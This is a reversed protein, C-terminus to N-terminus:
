QAKKRLGKRYTSEIALCTALTRCGSSTSRDRELTYNAHAARLLADVSTMKLKRVLRDRDFGDNRKIFLGMGGIIDGRLGDSDGPWSEVIIKLLSLVGSAGIRRYSSELAVVAKVYPWGASSGDLKLKLGADRVAGAIEVTQRDGELLQARFIAIASVSTREKNMLRFVRAEHEPGESRFVNCSVCRIGLRLLANLRQMGDVVWMTGDDREGVTLSGLADVDFNKEIRSVRLPVVTRQYSDCVSLSDVAVMRNETKVSRM